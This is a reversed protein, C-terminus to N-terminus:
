APEGKTSFDQALIEIGEVRGTRRNVLDVPGAYIEVIRQTPRGEDLVIRMDRTIDTRHRLQIRTPRKVIDIQGESRDMRAPPVDEVYAWARDHLEWAKKGAGMFSKASADKEFRVRFRLKGAPLLPATV